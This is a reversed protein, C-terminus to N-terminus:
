RVVEPRLAAFGGAILRVALVMEQLAMPAHLISSVVTRV